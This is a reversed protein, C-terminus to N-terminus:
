INRNGKRRDREERLETRPNEARIRAVIKAKVIAGTVTELACSVDASDNSGAGAM